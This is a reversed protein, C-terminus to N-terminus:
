NENYLDVTKQHIMKIENALWKPELVKIAYGRSLLPTLFDSTPSITIEFDSYEDTTIIEKQSRHLPLDRMYFVEKAFARIVVKEVIIDEDCVIGYCNDFLNSHSIREDYIFKKNTIELSILRDFALIFYYGNPEPKKVIAYWRKNFLKVFCPELIMTSESNEIGYRKYCVKIKVDRKMANIFKHLNEGDSPIYETIIRNHVSKSESLISNVSLTSLMWNQITNENLVEENYIYYKYGDKKDCEIIVGFIDLIADRHRNFSSRAIPIGESMETKLWYKNIDEFSIKKHRYILNVLWSYQQFLIYTKM